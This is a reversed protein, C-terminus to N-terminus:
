HNLICIPADASGNRFEAIPTILFDKRLTYKIGPTTGKCCEWNLGVQWLKLLFPCYSTVNTTQVEM